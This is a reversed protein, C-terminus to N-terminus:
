RDLRGEQAAHRYQQGIMAGKLPRLIGLCLALLLPLWLAAHVWYSPQYSVEVALAAAVVVCGVILIVFVAPGDGSDAFDYDLRCVTCAEPLGLYGAFLAGQGCRPCRGRLAAGVPNVAQPVGAM